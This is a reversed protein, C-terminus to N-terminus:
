RAARPVRTMLKPTPSGSSSVGAKMRSARTAAIVGDLRYGVAAPMAGSRSAIAAHSRRRKPTVTWGSWWTMGALPALSARWLKVERTTSAGPVGLREADALSYYHYSRGGVNLERLTQAARFPQAM